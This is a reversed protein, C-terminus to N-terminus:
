RRMKHVIQVETKRRRKNEARVGKLEAAENTMPPLPDNVICAPDHLCTAKSACCKVRSKLEAQTVIMLHMPSACRLDGCRPWLLEAKSKDQLERGRLCAVFLLEALHIRDTGAITWIRMEKRQVFLHDGLWRYPYCQRTAPLQEATLRVIEQWSLRLVKPSLQTRNFDCSNKLKELWEDETLGHVPENLSLYEHVIRVSNM